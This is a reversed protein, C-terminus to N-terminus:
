RIPVMLVQTFLLFLVAAFLYFAVYMYWKRCRLCWLIIPPVIVTAVIIGFLNFLVVYAVILAFILVPFLEKKREEKTKKPAPAEDKLKLFQVLNNVFGIVSTLLLGGVILYPFTRPTFSEAEMMATVKIQTPILWLLAVLSVAIFFLMLLMDQKVKERKM